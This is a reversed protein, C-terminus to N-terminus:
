GGHISIALRDLKQEETWRYPEAVVIEEVGRIHGWHKWVM